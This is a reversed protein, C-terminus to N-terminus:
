QNPNDACPWSFTRMAGGEKPMLEKCQYGLLPADQGAPGAPGAPGTVGPTGPRGAHGRPGAHTLSVVLSAAALVVALAALIKTM